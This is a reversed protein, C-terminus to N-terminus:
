SVTICHILILSDSDYFRRKDQQLHTELPEGLGYCYRRLNGACNSEDYGGEEVTVDLM